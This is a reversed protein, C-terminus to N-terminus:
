DARQLGDVLGMLERLSEVTFVRAGADAACELDSADGDADTWQRPVRMKSGDSLRVLLVCKGGM